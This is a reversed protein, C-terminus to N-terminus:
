DRPTHYVLFIFGELNSWTTTVDFQAKAFWCRLQKCDDDDDSGGGSVCKSDCYFVSFIMMEYENLDFVVFLWCGFFRCFRFFRSSVVINLVNRRYRCDAHDDGGIVLM